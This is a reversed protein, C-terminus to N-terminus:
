EIDFYQVVNTLREQITYGQEVMKEIKSKLNEM